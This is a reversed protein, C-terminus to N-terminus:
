NELLMDGFDVVRHLRPFDAYYIQENQVNKAQNDQADQVEKASQKETREKVSGFSKIWTTLREFANYRPTLPQEVARPYYVYHIHHRM